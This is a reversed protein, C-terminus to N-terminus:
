ARYATGQRSSSGELNVKDLSVLSIEGEKGEHLVAPWRPGKRLHKHLPPTVGRLGLLPSGTGRQQACVCGHLAM